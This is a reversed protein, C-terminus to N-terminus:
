GVTYIMASSSSSGIGFSSPLVYIAVVVVSGDLCCVVCVVSYIIVSLIVRANGETVMAGVLVGNVAVVFVVVVVVM